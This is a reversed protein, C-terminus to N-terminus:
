YILQKYDISQIKWQSDKEQLLKYVGDFHMMGYMVFINSAESSLLNDVLHADREDLIVSFLDQNGFAELMKNRVGANKIIFNLVSKNVYRMVALEKESLNSLQDIIDRSIDAVQQEGRKSTEIDISWTKERYISMITNIDLDINFDKDNIIWFFEPNKQHDVWYLKSFNKYLDPSFEVWIAENFEKISEESWPKVGEYFLIFGDKKAIGIDKKVEDYFTQSWIHSMAQFRLEKSGNSLTYLPIEAPNLINQYYAFGGVLSM